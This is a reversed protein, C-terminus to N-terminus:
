SRWQSGFLLRIWYLIARMQKWVTEPVAGWVERLYKMEVRRGARKAWSCISADEMNRSHAPAGQSVSGKLVSSRHEPVGKRERDPMQRWERRTLRFQFSDRRRQMSIQWKVLEYMYKYHTPPSPPPPPPPSRVHTQTHTHSSHIRIDKYASQARVLHPAM